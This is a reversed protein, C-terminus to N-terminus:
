DVKKNGGACQSGVADVKKNGGACQSGVADVKKNGGACQSGVAEVQSNNTIIVNTSAEPTTFSTLIMMLSFLGFTLIAKKMINTKIHNIHTELNIQITTFVVFCRRLVVNCIKYEDVFFPM